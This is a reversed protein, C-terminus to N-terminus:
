LRENVFEDDALGLVDVRGEDKSHAVSLEDRPLVEDCESHAGRLARREDRRRVGRRLPEPKCIILHTGNTKNHNSQWKTAENM